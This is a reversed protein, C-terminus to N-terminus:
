GTALRAARALGAALEDPTNLPVLSDLAPDARRVVDEPVAAVAALATLARLRREGQELLAGVTEELDVRVVA